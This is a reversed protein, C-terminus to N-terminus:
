TELCQLPTSLCNKRMCDINQGSTGLITCKDLTVQHPNTTSNFSNCSSAKPFLCKHMPQQPLFYGSPDSDGPMLDVQMNSCLQGLYTDVEKIDKGVPIHLRKKSINDCEMETIDNLAFSSGAIITRVIKSSFKGDDTFGTLFDFLSERLINSVSTDGFRLGSMLCVYQAEGSKKLPRPIQSPLEPYFLAEVEFANEVKKGIVGVYMGTVLQDVELDGYIEVRGENDEIYMIDGSDAFCGNKPEGRKKDNYVDLVCPKLNMQKYLVGVVGCEFGKSCEATGVVKVGDRFDSMQKSIIPRFQDNLYKYFKFYQQPQTKHTEPTNFENSVEGPVNAREIKTDAM